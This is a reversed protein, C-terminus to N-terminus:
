YTRNLRLYKYRDDSKVTVDRVGEKGLIQLKVVAGADGTAWVESYFDAITRVPNGAVAVVIDDEAIGAAAAPGEPSVRDVFVHGRQESSFLGLWPRRPKQTRGEQLLEGFIPKLADIPVFMNGPLSHKGTGAVDGVVLSGIGILRGKTNILAAGSFNQQPPTTFIANPLLYEWYGAFTRRSAIRTEVVNAARHASIMLAKSDVDADKSKGFELPTGPIPKVARLLGFGTESDYAIIDASIVKRQRTVVEVSDAELIIYGITLILGDGDIVVGTGHRETGLARATRADGPIEARIGVIADLPNAQVPVSPSLILLVFLSAVCGLVSKKM